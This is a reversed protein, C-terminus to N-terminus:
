MIACSYPDNNYYHGGAAPNMQCVYHPPGGAYGYSWVAAPPPPPKSDQDEPKKDEKKKEEVPGLSVLEAHGVKNRLLTVLAASDIGDGTVVIQTKEPGDLSASDVGNAGVVIKMAKSRSKDKNMSVKIVLKQKM